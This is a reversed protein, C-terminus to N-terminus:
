WQVGPYLSPIRHARYLNAGAEKLTWITQPNTGATVENVESGKGTPEACLDFELNGNALVTADGGWESFTSPPLAQRFRITATKAAEDIAFIPVTTYCPNGTDGCVVGNALIRNDGNDVMTLAFQGTTATSAFSPEHQAYFWDQPATGGALAFDGDEGLKWLIDGNGTGNEYDVRVIWSQHRISVLLNGDGPSYIVANTHTWDPFNMPHRNVDLHDFENWVWSVNFNQDLDVLVDGLVNTTGPYGTIVNTYSKLMAGILVVHGNATPTVDHHIDSLTLNYGAAALKQNLTALTIQAM